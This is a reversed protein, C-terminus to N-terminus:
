VKSSVKLPTTKAAAPVTRCGWEFILIGVNPLLWSGWGPMGQALRPWARYPSPPYEKERWVPKSGDYEVM